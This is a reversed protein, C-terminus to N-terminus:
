AGVLDLRGDLTGSGIGLTLDQTSVPRRGDISSREDCLDWGLPVRVGDAHTPCLDHVMPHDEPVLDELWVVGEAYAYSLTAAAPRGCGPRACSRSVRPVTGDGSRGIPSGGGFPLSGAGDVLM